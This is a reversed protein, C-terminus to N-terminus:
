WRKTCYWGKLILDIAGGRTYYWRTFYWNTLVVVVQYLVEGGIDPRFSNGQYLVVQYLGVQYLEVEQQVVM